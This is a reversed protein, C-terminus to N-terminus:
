FVLLVIIEHCDGNRAHPNGKLRNLAADLGGGAFTRATEMKALAGYM